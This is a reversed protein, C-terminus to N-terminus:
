KLIDNLKNLFDNYEFNNEFDQSYLVIEPGNTILGIRTDGPYIPNFRCYGIIRDLDIKITQKRNAWINRSSSKLSPQPAIEHLNNM